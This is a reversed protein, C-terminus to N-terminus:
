LPRQHYLLFDKPLINPEKQFGSSAKHTFTIITNIAMLLSVVISEFVLTFASASSEYNQLYLVIKVACM